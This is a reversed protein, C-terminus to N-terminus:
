PEGAEHERSSDWGSEVLTRRTRLVRATEAPGLARTAELIEDREADTMPIAEDEVDARSMTTVPSSGAGQGPPKTFSSVAEPMARTYGYVGAAALLVNVWGTFISWVLARGWEPVTSVAWLLVGLLSLGIAALPGRRDDVGAWKAFQTLAVVAGSVLLAEESSM